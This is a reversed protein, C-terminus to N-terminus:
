GNGRPEVPRQGDQQGEEERYIHPKGRQGRLAPLLKLGNFILINVLSIAAKRLDYALDLHGLGKHALGALEEVKSGAVAGHHIGGLRLGAPPM